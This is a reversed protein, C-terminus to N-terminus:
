KFEKLLVEAYKFDYITDIDVSAVEDMIYAFSNKGFFHLDQKYQAVTKLYIAGNLRYFQQLDQSRTSMNKTDIFGQLCFDDSLPSSWLPSHECKCMSVISTAKKRRFESFAKNIDKSTRLPSTPQLLTVTDFCRSEVEEYYSLCHLLVDATTSKDGSLLAPRLFPVEIGLKKGLDAIAQSDTSLCIVDFEGSDIAAEITYQILPKGLLDLQNKKPLRKSGARAPIIALNVRKSEM